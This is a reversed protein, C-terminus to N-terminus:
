KSRSFWQALFTEAGALLLVLIALPLWFEAGVRQEEVVKRLSIMPTWKTVSAVKGIEDLDGESLGALSSESPQPQAAFKLTTPPDDLSVEYLGSQDTAGYHLFPVGDVMTIKSLDRNDGDHLPSTVRANHGILEAHMRRVFPQGVPLNAAQDRHLVLAALTRHLFPVVAPRVPLDNWEIDATSAFQVVRGLGYIKEIMAPSGDSFRLVVKTGSIDNTGGEEETPPIMNFRRYFRASALTGSNQNKWLSVIPHDYNRTQLTVFETDQKEDGVSNGYIGPLLNLTRHLNENYFTPNIREGPFVMLGGGRRVYRELLQSQAVTLEAVNALTVVDYDDFRVRGLDATTILEPKIFYDAKEAFPVPTLAHRLFFTEAERPEQGPDGDVLLVNVEKIARVALTRTDDFPMRDPTIQATVSHWNDTDLRAFLSVSRSEKAAIEPVVLQDVPAGRDVQLTVKVNMAKETGENALTVEYRLPRGTPSLGSALSLETIAVNKEEPRGVLILHVRLNENPNGAATKLLTQIDGLQRWGELQGDTIVYIEKQLAARGRLTEIATELPAYMETSRDSLEAERLVKRVLNLDHTPEALLPQATDSALFVAAASGTPLSDVVQAAAKRAQEFRTEVGDSMGMSGSNDLLIVSSVKALGFAGAASDRWAPRALALALFFLLACRLILLILDEMNMRKQNKEVSLQIFRMAAWVVKRFRRRNLLHIIIPVSVAALGFLLFPNLFSM